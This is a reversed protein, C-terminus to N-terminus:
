SLLVFLYVFIFFYKEHTKHSTINHKKKKKVQFQLGKIDDLARFFAPSRLWIQRLLAVEVLDLYYSLIDHSRGDLGQRQMMELVDETSYTRGSRALPTHKKKAGEGCTDKILLTENFIEPNLLSFDSRFFLDPVENYCTRLEDGAHKNWKGGKGKHNPGSPSLTAAIADAYSDMSGSRVRMNNMSNNHNNHYKNNGVASAAPTASKRPSTPSNISNHNDYRDSHNGQRRVFDYMAHAKKMREVLQELQKDEAPTTTYLTTSSIMTGNSSYRGNSSNKLSHASGGKSRTSTSTHGSKGTSAGSHSSM